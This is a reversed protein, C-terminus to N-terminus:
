ERKGAVNRLSVTRSFLQRRHGEFEEPITVDCAARPPIDACYTQGVITYIKEDRFGASAEQSRVMLSVKVRVVDSWRADNPVEPYPDSPDAPLDEEGDNGDTDLGYELRLLEVNDVLPTEVYEFVDEAESTLEARVLQDDPNVYYIRSLYRYIPAATTCDRNQFDFDTIDSIFKSSIKIDDAGGDASCANVQLHFSTDGADCGADGVACSSARRVAIYDTGLKPTILDVDDSDDATPCSFDPTAATARGGQVPYGMAWNLQCEVPDDIAPFTAEDCATAPCIEPVSIVDVARREGWFSANTLDGELLRLTYTANELQRGARELEWRTKSNNTVIQTVGLMIIIGLLLSIMIEVLGFGSEARINKDIRKM